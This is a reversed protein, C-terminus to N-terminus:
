EERLVRTSSDQQWNRFSQLLEEKMSPFNSQQALQRLLNITLRVQKLYEVCPPCAAFHKELQEMKQPLLANELYDTILEVVEQCTLWDDVPM